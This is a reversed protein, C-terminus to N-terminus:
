TTEVSEAEPVTFFFSAGQGPMASAHITGGHRRVIRQVTALGIGLGPFEDQRHLRRFPQFLEKSHAMDFGAGNDAICIFRQGDVLETGVRILPKDTTATYKWANGLLNRMVSELMRADGWVILGPEIKWDVVRMPDSRVLEKRIRQAMASIDVPAREIDHRTVRSLALLGDILRGMNDSAKVIHDLCDRAEDDLQSAFDEELIRSFGSMARLPARLDHSVAYAFADLEENAARLEATRECVRQELSANLEIIRAEALKRESIDRAIKSAGVIRGEKDRIPSVTVSISIKSGDKCVRQTEFHRFSEGHRITALVKEEEDRREAPIIALISRGVIEAATYGFIKEAARNWSTVIGELTKGIIADESSEVISVMLMKEKQLSEEAAEKALRLEEEARQRVRVEAQLGENALRLQTPSPLELALPILRWLVAATVVSLLATIMKLLADLGYLPQWLVIAGMLHTTGCAMIFAAFMWLLWRYPFDARRRAFFVLAVPMSFYALFTLVDSIVFTIMLLPSWNICYGHPLYGNVALLRSLEDIM